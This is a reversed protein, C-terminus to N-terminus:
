WLRPNWCRAVKGVEASGFRPAPPPFSMRHPVTGLDRSGTRDGAPDHSHAGSRVSLIPACARAHDRMTGRLVFAFTSAPLDTVREACGGGVDHGSPHDVGDRRYIR